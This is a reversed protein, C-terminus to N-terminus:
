QAGVCNTNFDGTFERLESISLEKKGSALTAIFLKNFCDQYKYTIGGEHTQPMEALTIGTFRDDAFRAVGFCSSASAELDEYPQVDSPNDEALTLFDIPTMNQGYRLSGVTIRADTIGGNCRDGAAFGQLVRIKSTSREISVLSSFQGTGGGSSYSLVVPSGNWQGVYEYYSYSVADSSDDKYRYSYGVKGNAWPDDAKPPLKIIEGKICESIDLWEDASVSEFCLPDIPAGDNMLEVPLPGAALASCPLLALLAVRYFSICSTSM